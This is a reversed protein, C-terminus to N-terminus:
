DDWDIRKGVLAEAIERSHMREINIMQKNQQHISILKLIAFLGGVIFIVAMMLFYPKM